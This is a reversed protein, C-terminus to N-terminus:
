ERKSTPFDVATGGDDLLARLGPMYRSRAGPGANGLVRPRATASRDAAVRNVYPDGDRRRHAALHHCRIQRHPHAAARLACAPCTRGKWDVLKLRPDLPRRGRRANRYALRADSATEFEGVYYERGYNLRM